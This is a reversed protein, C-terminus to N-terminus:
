LSGETCGCAGCLLGRVIYKELRKKKKANWKSDSEAILQEKMREKREREKEEDTKPTVIDANTDAAADVEAAGRARKAKKKGGVSSQRAKANYRERLHGM